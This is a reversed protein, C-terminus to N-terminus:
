FHPSRDKHYVKPASITWVGVTFYSFSKTMESQPLSSIPVLPKGRSSLRVKSFYPSRWHTGSIVITAQQTCQVAAPPGDSIKGSPTCIKKSANNEASDISSRKIMGSGTMIPGPTDDCQIGIHRVTKLNEHSSKLVNNSINCRHHSKAFVRCLVYSAEAKTSWGQSLITLKVASFISVLNEHFRELNKLTTQPLAENLQIAIILGMLCINKTWSNLLASEPGQPLGKTRIDDVGGSHFLQVAAPPGDSIKGSPTCIKKSANNEASDISSRKIMGSGTMIPGPTDDCQIGIHRVTKLNEHSSKLVNNSINCRHHSKAFVRCLVYSAEATNWFRLFDSRNQNHHSTFLGIGPKSWALNKEGNEWFWCPVLGIVLGGLSPKAVNFVVQQAFTRHISPCNQREFYFYFVQNPKKFKPQDKTFHKKYFSARMALAGQWHLYSGSYIGVAHIRPKAISDEGGPAMRKYVGAVKTLIHDSLGTVGLCGGGARRMEGRGRKVRGMKEFCYWHKKKGERGFLFCASEPLNFPEYRYLDIEPILNQSSQSSHNNKLTLYHTILQQESPFFQCGPPLSSNPNPNPIKSDSDEM